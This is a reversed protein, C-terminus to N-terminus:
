TGWQLVRRMQPPGSCDAGYLLVKPLAGACPSSRHLVGRAQFTRTFDRDEQQLTRDAVITATLAVHQTFHQPGSSGMVACHRATNRGRVVTRPYRRFACVPPWDVCVPDYCMYEVGHNGCQGGANHCPSAAHLGPLHQSFVFPNRMSVNSTSASPLITGLDVVGSNGANFMSFGFLNVNLCHHPKGFGEAHRRICQQPHVLVRLLFLLRKDM